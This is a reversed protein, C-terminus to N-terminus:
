KLSVSDTEAIIKNKLLLEVVFYSGSTKIEIKLNKKIYNEIIQENM